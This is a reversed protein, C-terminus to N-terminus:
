SPRHIFDAHPQFMEEPEPYFFYLAGLGSLCTFLLNVAISLFSFVPTENHRLDIM